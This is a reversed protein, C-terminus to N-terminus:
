KPKCYKKIFDNACAEFGNLQREREEEKKDEVPDGGRQVSARAERARDRALKLSVGPYEGLTLRRSKSHMRYTFSWSKVGSASIRL